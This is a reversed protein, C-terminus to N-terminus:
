VLRTVETRDGSTVHFHFSLFCVFLFVFLFHFSLLSEM